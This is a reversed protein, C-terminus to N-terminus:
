DQEVDLELIDSECYRLMPWELFGLHAAARMPFCLWLVCGVRLCLHHGQGRPRHISRTCVSHSEPHICGSFAQVSDPERHVSSDGRVSVVDM